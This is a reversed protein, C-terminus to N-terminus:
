KRTPLGGSHPRVIPLYNKTTGIESRFVPLQM